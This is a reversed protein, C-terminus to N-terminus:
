DQDIPPFEAWKGLRFEGEQLPLYALLTEQYNHPEKDEMGDEVEVWVSLVLMRRSLGVIIQKTIEWNLKSADKELGQM